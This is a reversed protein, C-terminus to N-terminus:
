VHPAEENGQGANTQQVRTAWFDLDPLSLSGINLYQGPRRGGACFDTGDIIGERIYLVRLQDPHFIDPDIKMKHIGSVPPIVYRFFLYSFIRTLPDIDSIAVQLPIHLHEQWSAIL